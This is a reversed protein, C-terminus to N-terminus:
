LEFPPSCPCRHIGVNPAAESRFSELFRAEDVESTLATGPHINQAAIRAPIIKEKPAEEVELFNGAIRKHGAERNFPIARCSSLM